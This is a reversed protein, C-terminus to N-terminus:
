SRLQIEVSVDHCDLAQGADLGLMLVDVENDNSLLCTFFTFAKHGEKM